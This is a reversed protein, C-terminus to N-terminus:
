TQNNEQTSRTFTELYEIAQKAGLVGKCEIDFWHIFAIISTLEQQSFLITRVKTYKKDILRENERPTFFWVIAEGIIDADIPDTIDALMFAPLYYRFAEPEFEYFADLHQRLDTTKHGQWSRGSFYNAPSDKSSNRSLIGTPKPTNKFASEIKNILEASMVVM